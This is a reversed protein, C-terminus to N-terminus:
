HLANCLCDYFYDIDGKMQRTTEIAKEAEFRFTEKDLDCAHYIEQLYKLHEDM